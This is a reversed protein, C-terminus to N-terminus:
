AGGMVIYQTGNCYVTMPVNATVDISAAAAEVSGDANLVIINNGNGDLTWNDDEWSNVGDPILKIPKMTASATSPLSHTISGASPDVLYINNGALTSNTTLTSVNAAGSVSVWTPNSGVGNTQLVQGASGAGLRTINTGNYYLIDGQALNSVDSFNVAGDARLVHSLDFGNLGSNILLSQYQAGGSVNPFFTNAFTSLDTFLTRLQQSKILAKRQPLTTSYTLNAM